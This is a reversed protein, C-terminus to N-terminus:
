GKEAKRKKSVDEETGSKQADVRRDHKEKGGSEKALIRQFVDRRFHGNSPCREFCSEYFDSQCKCSLAEPKAFLDKLQIDDAFQRFISQAPDIIKAAEVVNFRQYTTTIEPVSQQLRGKAKDFRDIFDKKLTKGQNYSIGSPRAPPCDRIRDSDKRWVLRL